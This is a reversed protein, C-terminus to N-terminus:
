NKIISLIAMYLGGLIWLVRPDDVKHGQGIESIFSSPFLDKISLNKVEFELMTM